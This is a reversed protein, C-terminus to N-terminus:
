GSIKEIRIRGGSNAVGMATLVSTIVAIDSNSASTLTEQDTSQNANTNITQSADVHQKTQPKALISIIIRLIFLAFFTVVLGLFGIRIAEYFAESFIRDLIGM